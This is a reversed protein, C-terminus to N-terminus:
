WQNPLQWRAKTEEAHSACAEEHMFVNQRSFCVQRFGAVTTISHTGVNLYDFTEARHGLNRAANAVSAAMTFVELVDLDRPLQTLQVDQLIDEM